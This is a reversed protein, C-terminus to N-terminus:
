LESICFPMATCLQEAALSSAALKTPVSDGAANAAPLMHCHKVCRFGYSAVPLFAFLGAHEDPCATVRDEEMPLAFTLCVEKVGERKEESLGIHDPVQM